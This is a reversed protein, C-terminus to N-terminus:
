TETPMVTYLGVAAMYKIHKNREMVRMVNNVQEHTAKDRLHYAVESITYPGRSLFKLIDDPLENYNM